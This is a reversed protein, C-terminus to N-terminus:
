KVEKQIFTSAEAYTRAILEVRESPTCASRAVDWAITSSLGKEFDLIRYGLGRGLGPHWLVAHHFKM